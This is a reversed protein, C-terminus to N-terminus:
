PLWTPRPSSVCEIEYKPVRLRPDLKTLDINRFTPERWNFPEGLGNVDTPEAPTAPARRVWSPTKFKSTEPAVSADFSFISDHAALRPIGPRCFCARLDRSIIGM